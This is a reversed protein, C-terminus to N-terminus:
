LSHVEDRRVVIKPTRGLWHDQHPEVRVEIGHPTYREVTAYTVYEEFWRKFTVREGTAYQTSRTIM